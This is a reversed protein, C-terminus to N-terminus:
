RMAEHFDATIVQLNENYYLTAFCYRAEIVGYEQTSVGGIAVQVKYTGFGTDYYDKFLAKTVVSVSTDPPVLVIQDNLHLEVNGKDDRQSLLDDIDRVIKSDTLIAELHEIMEATTM